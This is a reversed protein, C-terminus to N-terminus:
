ASAAIPSSFPPPTATSSDAAFRRGMRRASMRAPPNPNQTPATSTYSTLLASCSPYYGGQGYPQDWRCRAWQVLGSVGKSAGMKFLAAPENKRLPGCFLRRSLPSRRLAHFNRSLKVLGCPFESVRTIHPTNCALLPRLIVILWISVGWIAYVNRVCQTVELWVM